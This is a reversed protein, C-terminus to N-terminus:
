PGNKKCVGDPVTEFAEAPTAPEQAVEKMKEVDVTMERQSSSDSFFKEAFVFFLLLLL